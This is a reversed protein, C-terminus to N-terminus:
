VSEEQLRIAILRDVKGMALGELEAPSVWRRAETAPLAEGPALRCCFAHETIRFHTYAHRYVGLPEGVHIELGLQEHIERQLCAVLEAEPATLRVGPFEWLGGLLGGQPRRILLVREESRIVAAIQTYHPIHKRLARVPVQTQTGMKFAKCFLRLPCRHCEPNAPRCLTAGLDMLAQNFDGPRSPSLNETATQWLLTEGEPSGVPLQLNILRAYVRRINGDLAPEALGFAISAIAGATYRGVGPLSRLAEADPPLEGGFREVLVRACAQLNRVRAYYGLGEWLKLVEALDAQALSFVDPFRQIFREYYPRVSEVRTQQLMIESVWVHYPSPVSRWPLVRANEDYWALLAPAM